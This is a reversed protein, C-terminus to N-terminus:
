NCSGGGSVYQVTNTFSGFGQMAARGFGRFIDIHYGLIAYGTDQAIRGGVTSINVSASMPVVTKDVAITTGVAVCVGSATTACSVIKFYTNASTPPRPTRSWDITIIRGSLDKGSGQLLVGTGYLFDRRWTGILGPPNTVTAGSYDAESAVIYSTMLFSSQWAAQQFSVATPTPTDVDANDDTIHATGHRFTTLRGTARGNADTPSTPQTLVDASGRDSRFRLNVGSRAQGATTVVGTLDTRYQVCNNALPSGTPIIPTTAQITAVQPVTYIGTVTSGVALTGLYTRARLTTTRTFTLPGTYSPSNPSPEQGDVTYRIGVGVITVRVGNTYTGPAPSFALVAITAEGTVAHPVQPERGAAEQATEAHARPSMSCLVVLLIAVVWERQLKM